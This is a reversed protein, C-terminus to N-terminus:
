FGSGDGTQADSDANAVNDAITVNILEATGSSYIGGGDAEASNSSVTSNEVNLQSSGFM